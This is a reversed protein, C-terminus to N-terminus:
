NLLKNTDSLPHIWTYILKIVQLNHEKITGSLLINKGGKCFLDLQRAYRKTQPTTSNEKLIRKDQKAKIKAEAKELKKSDVTQEHFLYILKISNFFQFYGNM